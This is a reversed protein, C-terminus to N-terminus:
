GTKLFTWIRVLTILSILTRQQLFIHKILGEPNPGNCSIGEESIALLYKEARMHKFNKFTDRTKNKIDFAFPRLLFSLLLIQLKGYYSNKVGM